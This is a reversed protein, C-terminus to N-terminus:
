SLSGYTFASFNLSIGHSSVEKIKIYLQFEFNYSKLSVLSIDFFNM